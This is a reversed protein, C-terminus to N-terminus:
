ENWLNQWKTVRRFLAKRHESKANSHFQSKTLNTTIYVKNWNAYTFSGKIPLRLEYGDLINLLETIGIDNNYEDICICKEGEYGDWWQLQNGTIKYNAEEMAKRTKGTGTSGSLVVVEVKRFKKRNKKDVM